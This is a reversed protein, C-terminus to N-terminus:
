VVTEEEAKLREMAKARRESHWLNRCKTSCFRKHPAKAPRIGLAAECQPCRSNLIRPAPQRDHM